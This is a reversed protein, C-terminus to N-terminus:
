STLSASALTAEDDSEGEVSADTEEDLEVSESVSAVGAVLGEVDSGSVSLALSARGVVFTSRLGM